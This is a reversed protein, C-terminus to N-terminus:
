RKVWKSINEVAKEEEATSAANIRCVIVKSIDLSFIGMISKADVVYRGSILDIDGDIGFVVANFEKVDEMGNLKVFVEKM